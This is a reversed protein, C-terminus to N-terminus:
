CSRAAHSSDAVAGRTRHQEVVAAFGRELARSVEDAGDTEEVRAAPALLEDDLVRELTM